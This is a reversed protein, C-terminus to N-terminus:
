PKVEFYIQQREIIEVCCNKFKWQFLRPIKERQKKVRGVLKRRLM